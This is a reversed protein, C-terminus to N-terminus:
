VWEIDPTKQRYERPSTGFYKKFVRAYHASDYFGWKHAIETISMKDSATETLDQLSKNLRMTIIYHAVGGHEDFLRYLQRLSIKLQQALYTPSLHRDHLSAMIHREAMMKLPIALEDQVTLAPKMLSVMASQLADGDDSTGWSATDQGTMQQLMTRLMRGSLTTQSLKGFYNKQTINKEILTRPIHVSMQAIVGQPLMDFCSASDLLAMDGSKLVIQHNHQNIAMTGQKQLILFCYQGDDSHIKTRSVRSANTQIHAVALGGYNVQQIDGIFLKTQVPPVMSFNGCISHVNSEWQRWDHMGAM